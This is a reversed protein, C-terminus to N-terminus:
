SVWAWADLVFYQTETAGASQKKVLFAREHSVPKNTPVPNGKAPYLGLLVFCNNFQRQTQCASKRSEYDKLEVRVELSAPLMESLKDHVLDMRQSYSLSNNDLTEMLFGNEDMVAMAGNLVRKLELRNLYDEKSVQAVSAANLFSVLLIVAIVADLTFVFGNSQSFRSFLLPRV